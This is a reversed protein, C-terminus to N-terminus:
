EADIREWEVEGRSGDIIVVVLVRARRCLDRACTKPPCIVCVRSPPDAICLIVIEVDLHKSGNTSVVSKLTSSIFEMRGNGACYM